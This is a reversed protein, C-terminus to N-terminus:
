VKVLKGRTLNLNDFAPTDVPISLDTENINTRIIEIVRQFDLLLDTLEGDVRLKLHQKDAIVLICYSVDRIHPKLLVVDLYTKATAAKDEFVRHEQKFSATAIIDMLDAARSYGLDLVETLRKRSTKM